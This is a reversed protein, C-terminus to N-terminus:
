DTKEERKTPVNVKSILVPPPIASGPRVMTIRDVEKVTITVGHGIREKFQKRIEDKIVDVAPGITRQKEDIVLLVDIMTLSHQIIQFQQIKDTHLLHMVFHPIGTISSPPIMEGGPLVIADVRRGEIRDIVPAHMMCSCMRKSPVIFDSVGTYRIVPTGRGFLRTVVINGGDGSLHEKEKADMFEMYVFDPHLHYNGKHCQFAMPSCETAGYVDFLDAHFSKKIYERTYDDLISGSTAIIRPQITKGKGKRKLIALIMIIEPYGGIFEPNFAEIEELLTEPKDGAHFAKMNELPLVARLSPLATQTFYTAEASDPSLEAIVAM